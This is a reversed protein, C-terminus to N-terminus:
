LIKIKTFAGKLTKHQDNSPKKKKLFFIENYKCPCIYMNARTFKNGCSNIKSFTLKSIKGLM